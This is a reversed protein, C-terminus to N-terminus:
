FIIIKRVTNLLDSSINKCNIEELGPTVLLGPTGTVATTSNASKAAIKPTVKPAKTVVASADSNGIFGESLEHELALNYDNDGFSGEDLCAQM